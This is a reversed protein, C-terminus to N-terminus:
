PSVRQDPHALACWSGDAGHVSSGGAAAVGEALTRSPLLVVYRAVAVAAPGDFGSPAGVGSRSVRARPAFVALRGLLVVVQAVVAFIAVTGLM